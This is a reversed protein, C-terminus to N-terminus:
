KISIQYKDWYIHLESEGNLLLGMEKLYLHYRTEKERSFPDCASWERWIRIQSDGDRGWHGKDQEGLRWLWARLDPSEEEAMNSKVGSRREKVELRISKNFGCKRAVGSRDGQKQDRVRLGTCQEEPEKAWFDRTVSRGSDVPCPGDGLESFLSHQFSEM